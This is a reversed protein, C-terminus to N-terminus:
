RNNLSGIFYRTGLPLPRGPIEAAAVPPVLAQAAPVAAEAPVQADAM